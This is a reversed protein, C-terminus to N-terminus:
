VVSKRDKSSNSNPTSPNGEPKGTSSTASNSSEPSPSPNNPNNQSGGTIADPDEPSGTQPSSASEPSPTTDPAGSRTSGEGGGPPTAVHPAGEHSGASSPTSESSGQHAVTAPDLTRASDPSAGAGSDEPDAPTIVTEEGM